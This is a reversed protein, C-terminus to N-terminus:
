VIRYKPAKYNTNVLLREDAIEVPFFESDFGKALQIIPSNSQGLKKIYLGNGSTSESETILLYQHRSDIEASYMRNPQEPNSFILEDDQQTSGYVHFYIKQGKNSMSLEEGEKPQDYASYFFGNEYCSVGSFKVWEVHDDLMDGTEMDKVFIENWDSGSRAIMYVLYRGCPSVDLGSLAVTGDESLKNPDLLVTPDDDPSDMTYLVSQNQLGSNKFIFWRGSINFPTGAKPYNWLETLRKEIRERGPLSELYEFTVENQAKVWEATEDSNDDELWRYPDEISVGYFTDVADAKRTEPYDLKSNNCSFMMSLIIIPILIKM